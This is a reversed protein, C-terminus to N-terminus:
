WCRGSGLAPMVRVLLVKSLCSLLGTQSQVGQRPVLIRPFALAM